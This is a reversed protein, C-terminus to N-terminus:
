DGLISVLKWSLPHAKILLAFHPRLVAAIDVETGGHCSLRVPRRRARDKLDTDPCVVSCIPCTSTTPTRFDTVDSGASSETCAPENSGRDRCETPPVVSTLVFCQTLYIATLFM